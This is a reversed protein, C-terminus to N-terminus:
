NAPTRTWRWSQISLSQRGRTRGAIPPSPNGTTWFTTNNCSRVVRYDVCPRGLKGPTVRGAITLPEGPGPVTYFAGSASAPTRTTRTSSVAFATSVAASALSSSNERGAGLTISYGQRLRLRDCGLCCQRDQCRSRNRALGPHRPFKDGLIALGRNVRGAARGFILPCCASISGFPDGTRADRSHATMKGQATCCATSLSRRRRLVKRRGDNSIGV